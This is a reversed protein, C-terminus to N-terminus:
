KDWKLEPNAKELADPATADQNELAESAKEAEARVKAALAKQGRSYRAIASLVKDRESNILDLVGDFVRTLEKDKDSGAAAAFADLLKDAEDLSTRRSALKRALEAAARDDDWRGEPSDPGSWIAARSIESTRRQVCPWDDDAPPPGGAFAPASMLLLTLALAFRM